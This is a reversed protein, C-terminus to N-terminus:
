RSIPRAAQAQRVETREALGRRRAAPFEVRFQTMEGARQWHIRGRHREVIERAVSLGLGVGNPKDSVFPEFLQDCVRPAPGPGSDSVTLTVIETTPSALELTVKGTGGSQMACAAAAEIAAPLAEDPVPALDIRELPVPGEPAVIWQRWAGDEHAFRLRLADHHRVLATLVEEVAAPDLPRRAELLLPM